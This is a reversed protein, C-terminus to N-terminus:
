QPIYQSLMGMLKNLDSYKMNMWLLQPQGTTNYTFVFTINNKLSPEKKQLDVMLAWTMSRMLVIHDLSDHKNLLMFQVSLQDSAFIVPSIPIVIKDGTEESMNSKLLANLSAEAKTRLIQIGVSRLNMFLSVMEKYGEINSIDKTALVDEGAKNLMPFFNGNTRPCKVYLNYEELTPPHFNYEIRNLLCHIKYLYSGILYGEELNNCQDGYTLLLLKRHDFYGKLETPTEFIITCQGYDYFSIYHVFDYIPDIISKSRYFRNRNQVSIHLRYIIINIRNNIKGKDLEIREGFGNRIAIVETDLWKNCKLIQELAAGKVESEFWNNEDDEDYLKNSNKTKNQFIFITDKFLLIADGFEKEQKKFKYKNNDGWFTIIKPWREHWRGIVSDINDVKWEEPYDSFSPTM